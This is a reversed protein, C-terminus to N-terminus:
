FRTCVRRTYCVCAVKVCRGECGRVCARMDWKCNKNLCMWRRPVGGCASTAMVRPPAYRVYRRVPPRNKACPDRMRPRMCMYAHVPHMRAHSRTHTMAPPHAPSQLRDRVISGHRSERSCPEVARAQWGGFGRACLIVAQEAEV